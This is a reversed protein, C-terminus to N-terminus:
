EGRVDVHYTIDGGLMTVQDFTEDLDESQNARLYISKSRDFDHGAQYVHFTVLVNGDGGQNMITTYVTTRQKLLGSKSGDARSTVVIPKPTNIELKIGPFSNPNNEVVIFIICVLLLVILPVIIKWPSSKIPMQQSQPAKPQAFTENTIKPEEKLIPHGCKPCAVAKDSIDNSCESCKILPM